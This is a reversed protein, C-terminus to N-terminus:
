EMIKLYGLTFLWLWQLFYPQSKLCEKDGIEYINGGLSILKKQNIPKLYRWSLIGFPNNKAFDDEDIEHVCIYPSKAGTIKTIFIRQEWDDQCINRVAVQDGRKPKESSNFMETIAEKIQGPINKDHFKCIRYNAKNDYGRLYLWTLTNNYIIDPLENVRITVDESTVFKFNKEVIEQELIQFESDTLRFKLYM